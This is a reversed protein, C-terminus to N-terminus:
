DCDYVYQTTSSIAFGQAYVTAVSTRLLGDTDITNDLEGIVTGTGDTSVTSKLNCNEYTHVDTQAIAGNADYTQVLKPFSGTSNLFDSFVVYGTLVGAATYSESRVLRMDTNYEELTYGTLTGSADYNSGKVNKDGNSYEYEIYSQLADNLKSEDKLRKGQADYQISTVINGIATPATISSLMKTGNVVTYGYTITTTFGSTVTSTSEVYCEPLSCPNNNGGGDTVTITKMIENSGTANTAVLKVEYDGATDFTFTPNEDTSSFSTGDASWQYSDANTSENTFTVEDSTTPTVPSFSFAAVAPKTLIEEVEDKKSCGVFFSLLIFSFFIGKLITFFHRSKM